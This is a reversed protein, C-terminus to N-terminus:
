REIQVVYGIAVDCANTMGACAVELRGNDDFVSEKRVEFITSKKVRKSSLFGNSKGLCIRYLPNHSCRLEEGRFVITMCFIRASFCQEARIKIKPM